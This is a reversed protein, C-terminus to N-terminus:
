IFGNSRKNLNSFLELNNLVIGFVANERQTILIKKYKDKNIFKLLKSKGKILM